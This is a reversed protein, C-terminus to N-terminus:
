KLDTITIATSTSLGSADIASASITHTGKTITKGQWTASCSTTNSCIQLTTGDGKITISKIGSTGSASATINISGNAKFVAGNVPSTIAVIAPALTAISVPASPGSSGASDYASVTYTYTTGAVLGTDSFSSSSTTGVNAGNRFVKYGAAGTSANWNTNIQAMSAAAGTLGTPVPPPATTSTSSSGNASIFGILADYKPSATQLVSELAGWEGYRTYTGVDSLHNITTFGASQLGQYYSSYAAGMRSDRNAAIYLTTLATDSGGILSQGSEYGLLKLGYSNAMTKDIRAWDIVQKIMGGPYGGVVLGGQMIETFLQDLTFTNPVDYGFYPANAVATIGHNTSCPAGSWLACNLSLTAIGTNGVQTGMLVTVRSFDSGWVSKWIDGTQAVRMGYFNRNQDIPAASPWLLAGQTTMYYTQPYSGNWTENSYEVYVNRNSNLQQHVLTAFNTIYDDTAM